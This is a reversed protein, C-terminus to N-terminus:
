PRSRRGPFLGGPRLRIVLIALVFVTIQALVPSMWGGLFSDLGGVLGGGALLGTMSGAGGVLIALFAPVLFGLGMQPDVSILPAVLAGALGALGAGIAFSTRNVAGTDIGLSAATGPRAIVARALLGFRTRVLVFGAGAIVVAAVAMLVIRYAPYTFAGITLAGDLPVTVSHSGPGFGLVVLQKIAISLGWTALITDLPRHVIFRILLFEIVLGIVGVVVPAMLAAIWFPAGLGEAVVVTYAGLLFLEGHALNIIGMMGFVIVLGSAVLVLILVFSLADLVLPLTEIM